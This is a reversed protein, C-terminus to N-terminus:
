VVEQSVIASIAIATDSSGNPSSAVEHVVLSNLAEHALRPQFATYAYLFVPGVSGFLTLYCRVQQFLLEIGFSRVLFPYGIHRLKPDPPPPLLKIERRDKVEIVAFYDGELGRPARQEDTATESQKKSSM